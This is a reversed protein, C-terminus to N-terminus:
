VRRDPVRTSPRPDWNQNSKYSQYPHRQQKKCAVLRDRDFIRGQNLAICKVTAEQGIVKLCLPTAIPKEGRHKRLLAPRAFALNPNDLADYTTQPYRSISAFKTASIRGLGDLLGVGLTPVSSWDYPPGHLEIGAMNGV